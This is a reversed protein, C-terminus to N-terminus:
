TTAEEEVAETGLGHRDLDLAANLRAQEALLQDLKDAHEFPKGHSAKAATLETHLGQLRMETRQLREPLEAASKRLRELLTSARKLEDLEYSAGEGVFWRTEFPTQMCRVALGRWRGGVGNADSLARSMLKAAAAEDEVYMTGDIEVPRPENAYDALLKLDAQIGDRRKSAATIWSPLTALQNELRWRNSKWQTKLLTLRAVESDVEAKRLVMPNGSALAKVEAYTLAALEADEVSRMGTDGRMAQAIFMAKRELCNWLWADFSSETVYRWIEIEDWENGPRDARGDRQEVDAPRWPADLHHVAKLLRQVNTGTGLKETSGLCIRVIGARMLKFLKAKAADSEYEHIFAIEDRPVGRAVLKDRVEDYVNWGSANPTSLDCFILQTGRRLETRRWTEYVRAVCRNLKSDPLDPLAPSYVRLDLAACRGDFTISLMNDRRPDVGGARLEEARRVLSGMVETLEDSCPAVDVQAKGGAIAPTPLTLMDRTQIDAVLRFVRLLEPLNVFRSFRKHMRYGSGDPAIELACVVQGFTAAWADFNDLGLEALTRPQLYRQMAHLEAMSNSIPTATGFVVGWQPREHMRMVLRTKMLMDFARESASNPLGAISGLKSFRFLNKYRHGEDVFVWDCGLQEFTLMEDKRSMDETAKELRAAWHKRHRKMEKIATRNDKMEAAVLAADIESLAEALFRKRESASVAIREFTAHTMVIADWDGTAVRACFERRADGALDEKTAMLVNAAPYCRLFEGCYAELTNGQVVHLPKRAYGLRRLEMSAVIYTMTKGAGVRHAILANGSLLIRWIANRQNPRLQVSDTFGVPRLMRGDFCRDRISNFLDNYLRCLRHRRTPEEFIWESFRHEILSQKERAAATEPANVVQRDKGDAGEVTDHVTPVQMNLSQEILAFANMRGTGFESTVTAPLGHQPGKVQWAGTHRDRRATATMWSQGTASLKLLEDMFAVVDDEPVWPAGLRVDIQAPELDEPQVARLAEVNAEYGAGAQEAVRLKYRVNGSLYEDAAVLQGSAPETFVHREGLLQERVPDAPRGVLEAIRAVDIEGCEALCCLLADGLSECHTVPEPKGVTRRFFLPAKEATENEEDWLELSLLLPYDPDRRMALANARSALFGFRKVFVDYVGNLEVRLVALAAEDDSCTQASLLRRTIDRVRVMGEIRQRSLAPLTDHVDLLRGEAVRHVRENHMVFAGPKLEKPAAVETATAAARQRRAKRPVYVDAPLTAIQEDVAAWVDTGDFRVELMQQPGHQSMVGLVRDPNKGFHANYFRVGHPYQCNVLDVWDPKETPAGRDLRRLFVMDAAVDTGACRAFTRSPLRIAGLLEAKHALYERVRGGVADLTYTSTIFAILGGPRVLDLTRGFFYNAITWDSYPLQRLDPVQYRGFPINSIAVDFSGDELEAKEFPTCRVDAAHGFLLRTIDASVTDIEVATFRSAAVLDAPAAHLFHGIGCAPELVRGGLFGFRRLAAWMARVAALPTYHANNVTETVSAYEADSLLARLADRRVVAAADTHAPDIISALGGWGAYHALVLREDATPARREDHLLKRLRLATMNADYRGIQGSWDLADASLSPWAAAAAPPQQLSPTADIAPACRAPLDDIDDQLVQGTGPPEFGALWPLAYDQAITQM